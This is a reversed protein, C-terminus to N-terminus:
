EVDEEVVADIVKTSKIKKLSKNDETKFENDYNKNRSKLYIYNIIEILSYAIIFFGIIKDFYGSIMFIGVVIMLLSTILYLKFSSKDFRKISIAAILKNIGAFIVWMGIIMRIAFSLTNSYLLFLSGCCIIIIGLLLESLKYNGLKGRMYTYVIVKIIGVIILLVGILKSAITILDETSTILIIGFVFFLLAYILNNTETIKKFKM